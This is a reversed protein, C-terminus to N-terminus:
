VFLCITAFGLGVTLVAYSLIANSKKNFRVFRGGYNFKNDRRSATETFDEDFNKYIFKNEWADYCEAVYNDGLYKGKGAGLIERKKKALLKNLFYYGAILLFALGFLAQFAEAVASLQPSFENLVAPVIAYLTIFLNSAWHMVSGYIHNKTLSVVAAIAIGALFQLIFMAVSGHMLAFCLASLFISFPVGREKFGRMIVGRFLLEECIAPLVPTIVLSYALIYLSNSNEIIEDPVSFGLDGFLTEMYGFFENHLATFCFDIGFILMVAMLLDIANLKFTYGDGSFVGVRKIKFFAVAVALIIGQSIVASIINVLFYDVGASLLPRFLYPLVFEAAFFVVLVTLYALAGDFANFVNPNYRKKNTLDGM